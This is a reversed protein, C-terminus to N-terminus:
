KGERLITEFENRKDFTYRKGVKAGLHAEALDGDTDKIFIIVQEAVRPLEDCVTQIRTKDFASLPADMVLPYAESTLDSSEEDGNKRALEIVGAIFAFCVSIGQATSTEIETDGRWGDADTVNITVNYKDDLALSFGGNYIRRFIANVTKELIRRIEAEKKTYSSNLTDRMEQAYAKYTEICRNAKDKLALQRRETEQREKETEKGGQERRLQEREIRLASLQQELKSLDSQLHGVDERGRLKEVLERIADENDGYTKAFNRVISYHHEIQGFFSEANKARLACEKAFSDLLTGISKPPIFERSKEVTEYASNGKTLECGCLCYGRKLLYDLTRAHIDPIGKDLKDAKKLIKTADQMPKVAFFDLASSKFSSLLQSVAGDRQRTLEDRLRELRMKQQSIEESAKNQSIRERLERRRNEMKEESDALEELRLQIADLRENLEAIRRAYGRMKADSAPDCADDYRRIVKSLHDIAEKMADLGLLSRVAESFERSKGKGIESRMKDIREGDFFFYRSLEQPLIEKVRLLPNPVKKTQGDPTKYGISLETPDERLRGGYEKRVRQIRHVTYQNGKHELILQVFVIEQSNQTMEMEVAKCLISKDKFDTEGYLCWTFAQALSTKGSGNAGMVVTVNSACDTAFELNQEGKFQRFNRVKISKVLM